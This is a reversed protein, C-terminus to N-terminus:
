PKNETNKVLQKLAVIANEDWSLKWAAADVFDAAKLLNLLEKYRSQQQERAEKAKQKYYAKM